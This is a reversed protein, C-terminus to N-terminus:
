QGKIALKFMQKIQPCLTTMQNALHEEEQQSSLSKRIFPLHNLFHPRQNWMLLSYRFIVPSLMLEARPETERLYM